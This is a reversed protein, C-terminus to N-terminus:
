KCARELILRLISQYPVVIWQMVFSKLYDALAKTSLSEEYQQLQEISKIITEPVSKGEDRITNLSHCIYDGEFAITWQQARKGIIQPLEHLLEEVESCHLKQPSSLDIAISPFKYKRIGQLTISLQDYIFGEGKENMNTFYHPSQSLFHEVASLRHQNYRGDHLVWIVQYGVSAYDNNRAQVEEVTIPSYQIEYVLKRSEWVVDAIRGISEFRCELKSDGEPLLNRLHHQLLLHPIGKGSQRCILNPQTHYYHPQRLNGRRVGLPQDCELCRYNGHKTAQHIFILEDISNLACLQMSNVLISETNSGM